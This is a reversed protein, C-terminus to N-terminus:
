TAHFDFRWISKFVRHKEKSFINASSLVNTPTRSEAFVRVKCTLFHYTCRLKSHTGIESVDEHSAFIRHFPPEETADEKDSGKDEDQENM